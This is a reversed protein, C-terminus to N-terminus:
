KVQKVMVIVADHTASIKDDREENNM